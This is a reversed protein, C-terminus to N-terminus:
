KSKRYESPTMGFFKKFDSNFVTRNSMGVRFIIEQITLNTTLLLNAAFSCRCYRVYENPTFRSSKQFKRYLTRVDVGVADAIDASNLKDESTMRTFIVSRVKEFFEKDENTMEMGDHVTVASESSRYYDKDSQKSKLLREILAKLFEGSFPKVVYADAGTDVGAIKDNDSVKASLIVIPLNATYKRARLTRIFELGDTDPMMIDTIVLSPLRRQIEEMAKAVSNATIVCYDPSLIDSILWLIDKNDDVVLIVPKDPQLLAADPVTLSAEEATTTSTINLHPLTVTMCTYSGVESEVKIDGGLKSVLMHSIYLGLGHRSAMDRYGNRDVNDFTVFRDFLTDIQEQPIGQGTNYVTFNLTDDTVDITIRIEGGTPTYKLANSTLNTIIKGMCSKDTNWRLDPQTTSASFTIDNEVAITAYPDIWQNLMNGIRVPQVSLKSFGGEEMKRLDLIEQILENLHHSHAQLSTIYKSLKQRESENLDKELIDCLGLIMTLPSCLEHTINTLFDIRDSYLQERHQESISRELEERKRALRRRFVLVAATAIAAVLIAYIIFATTSLYWPHRVIIDISEEDYVTRRPDSQYRIRLRYTGPPLNTFEATNRTGINIWRTDYGDLRYYYNIEDGHLYDLASFTLGVSNQDNDFVLQGRNNTYDHIEREQGNVMLKNFHFNPRFSDGDSDDISPFWVIGNIAGFFMEGTLPSIYGANDCFEKVDGTSNINFINGSLTNAQILGKNTSMWINGSRDPQIAHIMDNAMGDSRTYLRIEEPGVNDTRSMDIVGAGASSGFYLRRDTDYHLCIIDGVDPWMDTLADMFAYSHDHINYRAIGLGGRCGIFLTSDGDFAMSYVENCIYNDRSFIIDRAGTVAPKNGTRYTCRILGGQTSALWLTSDNEEYIDHIQRLLPHPMTTIHGSASEYYSIGPGRTALWIRGPHFKSETISFVQDDPLGDALGFRRVTGDGVSMNRTLMGTRSIRYLGNGKTGIWLSSDRGVYFSRVPKNLSPIDSSHIVSIRSTLDCIKRLGQGDTACWIVPQFRDNLLHFIGIDDPLTTMRYGDAAALLVPGSGYYSIIYDDNWTTIDSPNGHALAMSFDTIRRTKGSPLALHHLTRLSDVLYIGDPSHFAMVPSTQLISVQDTRLRVKEPTYGDSFDYRIRIAEPSHTIIWLNGNPDTQMLLVDSYDPIGPISAKVFCKAIPNYYELDGSPHLVWASGTTDTAMMHREGRITEYHETVQNLRLNFKDLGMTTLVWMHDDGADSLESIINGSLGSPNNLEFRFVKIGKGDYRNLGDYSGLWLYGKRDQFISLIANNSLDETNSAAHMRVQPVSAAADHM